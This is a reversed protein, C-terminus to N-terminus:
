MFSDVVDGGDSNDQKKENQWLVGVEKLSSDESEPNPDIFVKFAPHNDNKRNKNPFVLVRKDGNVGLDINGSLYTEGPEM